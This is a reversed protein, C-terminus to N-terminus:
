LRSICVFLYFTYQGKSYFSVEEDDSDAMELLTYKGAAPEFNDRDDWNNKTKDKFKKAFEKEAGDMKSFPGKM